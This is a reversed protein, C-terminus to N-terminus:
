GGAVITDSAKHQTTAVVITADKTHANHIAEMAYWLYGILFMIRQVAGAIGTVNFMVIPIVFAALIAVWDFLLALPTYPGRRFTVILVGATFGFGVGYASVSHLLDEFKDFPTEQWPMHSFAAAAVM